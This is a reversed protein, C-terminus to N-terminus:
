SRRDLVLRFHTPINVGGKKTNTAGSNWLPTLVFDGVSIADALTPANNAVKVIRQVTQEPAPERHPEDPPHIAAPPACMYVSACETANHPVDPVIMAGCVLCITAVTIKNM